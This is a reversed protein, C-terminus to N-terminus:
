MRPLVSCCSGRPEMLSSLVTRLKFRVPQKNRSNEMYCKLNHSSFDCFTFSRILPLRGYM